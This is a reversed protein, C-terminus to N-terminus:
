TLSLMQIIRYVVHIVCDTEAKLFRRTYKRFDNVFCRITWTNCAITNKKCLRHFLLPLLLYCCGRQHGLFSCFGFFNNVGQKFFSWSVISYTILWSRASITHSFNTFKWEVQGTWALNNSITTDLHIHHSHISIM